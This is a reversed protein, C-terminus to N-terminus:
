KRPKILTVYNILTTNVPHEQLNGDFLGLEEIEYKQQLEEGLVSLPNESSMLVIPPEKPPTPQNRPDWFKIERGSAWVVEIFGFQIEGNRYFPIHNLEPRHRLEYYPRFQKNNKIIKPLQGIGFLCVSAMFIVMGTWLLFPKKQFTFRTLILALTWFVLAGALSVLPNPSIGNQRILWWLAFPLIFSTLAMLWGNLNFIIKDITTALSENFAKILYRVYFATLIALPLLVPMLYREKKEPFLSLLIVAAWVWVAPFKYDGFYEIRKRAYFFILATTSLIAWIGSQLPFTWYHYFPRVHRNFWSASEKQVAYSLFEPHFYYVYLPWIASLIVVVFILLLIPKYHTRFRNKGSSFFRGILFPLLLAFFSVPGKSMFSFSMLIGSALFNKTNHDPKNLGKQLQWIAGMMFSHCFIDWSIDRALFFVYYSTAATGAALLPIKEDQTLEETLKFLFFILLIAALGSPLRLLSLNDQGFAIMALAAAWTPLPPKELRPEGNMTPLFWNGKELMERATTLNRAEMLYVEMVGNNVFFTFCTLLLLLLMHIHSRKM